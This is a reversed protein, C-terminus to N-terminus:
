DNTIDLTDLYTDINEIDELNKYKELAYSNEEVLNKNAENLSDLIKLMGKKIDISTYCLESKIQTLDEELESYFKDRIYCKGQLARNLKKKLFSFKGENSFYDLNKMNTIIKYNNLYSDVSKKFLLNYKNSTKLEKKIDNKKNNEEIHNEVENILRKIKNLPSQPNPIPSPGLGWDGIGM